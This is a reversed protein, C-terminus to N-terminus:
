AARGTAVRERTDRFVSAVGDVGGLEQLTGARAVTGRDLILVRSCLAGVEHLDHSSLVVACDAALARILEHTRVRQEPDLGAGPEDLFLVAPQHLVAAALAVRGRYGKSCHACLRDIVAGLGFRASVEEIRGERGARPLGRADAVFRLYRRVTLGGYLAPDEPMYGIARQALRPRAIVDVGAVRVSGATPLRLGTLIRLLSTKGSGNRGLLGFVERDHVAFTVDALAQVAGYEKWLHQVDIM